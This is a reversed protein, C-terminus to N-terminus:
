KAGELSSLKVLFFIIKKWSPKFFQKIIQKM